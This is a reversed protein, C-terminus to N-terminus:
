HFLFPLAYVAVMEMYDSERQIIHINIRSYWEQLDARLLQNVQFHPIDWGCEESWNEM